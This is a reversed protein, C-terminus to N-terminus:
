KGERDKNKKADEIAKKAMYVGSYIMRKVIQWIIYLFLVFGGLIAFITLGSDSM